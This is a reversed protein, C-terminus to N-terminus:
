ADRAQRASLPVVLLFLKKGTGGPPRLRDGPV